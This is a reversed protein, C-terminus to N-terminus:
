LDKRDLEVLEGSLVTGNKLVVRTVKEQANALSVSLLALVLICILKKM